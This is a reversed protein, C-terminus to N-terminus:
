STHAHSHTPPPLPPRSHSRLPPPPLLPPLCLITLSSFMNELSHAEACTSVPDVMQSRDIHWLIDKNGIDKQKHKPNEYMANM